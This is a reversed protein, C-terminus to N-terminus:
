RGYDSYTPTATFTIGGTTAGLIKADTVTPSTPDFESLLVGANIQITEFTNTPIKTFKM